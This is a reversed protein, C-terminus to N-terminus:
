PPRSAARCWAVKMGFGSKPSFPDPMCVCMDSKVSPWLVNKSSVVLPVEGVRLREDGALEPV